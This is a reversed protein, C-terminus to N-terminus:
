AQEELGFARDLTATFRSRSEVDLEEWKMWSEDCARDAETLRARFADSDIMKDTSKWAWQFFREWQQERTPKATRWKKSRKKM